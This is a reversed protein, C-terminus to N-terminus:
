KPSVVKKVAPSTPSTTSKSATGGSTGATSKDPGTARIANHNVVRGPRAARSLPKSPPPLTGRRATKNDYKAKHETVWQAIEEDDRLQKNMAVMELSLFPSDPTVKAIKTAKMALEKRQNELSGIVGKFRDKNGTRTGPKEPGNALRVYREIRQDIATLEESLKKSEERVVFPRKGDKTMNLTVIALHKGKQGPEVWWSDQLREIFRSTGMSQGGLVIDIGPVDKVVQEADRRDLHALMVIVDAGADMLKGVQARAAEDSPLIRYEEKDGLNAGPTLIAFVGIKLGGREVVVNPTFVPEGNKALVLNSNIFPFKAKGALEKLAKVGLAGVDMDGLGIGACGQGAYAKLLLDAKAM